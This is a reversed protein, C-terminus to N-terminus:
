ARKYHSLAKKYFNIAEKLNSNEKMKGLHYFSNGINFSAKEELSKDDTVLAKNFYELAEKYKGKKYLATGINFDVIESQPNKLKEQNYEKLAKDYDGQKFYFNGKSLSAFSVSNLFTILIVLFIFRM